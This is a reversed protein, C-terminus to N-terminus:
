EIDWNVLIITKSPKQGSFSKDAQTRVFHRETTRITRICKPLLSLDNSVGRELPQGEGLRPSAISTHEPQVRLLCWEQSSVLARFDPTKWSGFNVNRAPRRRHVSVALQDRRPM